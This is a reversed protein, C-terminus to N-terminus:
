AEEVELEVNCIDHLMDDQFDGQSDMDTLIDDETSLQTFVLTYTGDDEQTVSMPVDTTRITLTARIM